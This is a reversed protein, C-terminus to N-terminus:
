HWAPPPLGLAQGIETVADDNTVSWAALDALLNVQATTLRIVSPRNELFTAYWPFHRFSGIDEPPEDSGPPPHLAALIAPDLDDEWDAAAHNYVWCINLGGYGHVNYLENDLVRWGTGCHIVAEGRTVHQRFGALLEHYRVEEFVRNMSRDGNAGQALVPRFFSELDQSRDFESNANVFVIVNRVGRALLPMLGTYDTFGGDGHPLEVVRESRGEARITPHRFHPFVTAGTQLLRQAGPLPGGLLLFLQPAAGSSAMVDALSFPVQGAARRVPLLSGALTGVEANGYAWASVYFGGFPGYRQRVGTYLPTYELPMLRPYDYNPHDFVATAGVILYPRDEASTTVFDSYNLTPNTAVVDAVSAPDWAFLRGRARPVLPEVFVSEILRAFTRSTEGAIRNRLADDLDEGYEQALATVASGALRGAVERLSASFLSSGAVAKALTGNPEGVLDDWTLTARGRPRGLLTDIEQLSYVYPVAAWSGGSVATVYRVRDLWGNAQLGRLQGLTASASRTGGGSFAIGLDYRRAVRLRTTEPFEYHGTLWGDEDIPWVRAQLCDVCQRVPAAGALLLSAAITAGVACTAFAGHSPARRPVAPQRRTM